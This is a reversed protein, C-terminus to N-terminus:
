GRVLKCFAVVFSSAAPPDAVNQSKFCFNQHFRCAHAALNGGYNNKGTKWCPPACRAFEGDNRMEAAGVAFGVKVASTRM